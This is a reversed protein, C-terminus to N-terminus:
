GDMNACSSLYRSFGTKGKHMCTCEDEFQCAACFPAPNICDTEYKCTGINDREIM